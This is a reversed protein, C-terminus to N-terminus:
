GGLPTWRDSVADYKYILNDCVAYYHERVFSGDHETGLAFLWCERGDVVQKEGTYQVTMGQALYRQVESAGCLLETAM